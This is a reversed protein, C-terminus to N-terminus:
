SYGQAKGLHAVAARLTTLKSGDALVIPDAFRQDWPV